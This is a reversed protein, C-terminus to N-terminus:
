CSKKLAVADVEEDTVLTEDNTSTEEHFLEIATQRLLYVGMLYAVLASLASSAITYTTTFHSAEAACGMLGFFTIALGVGRLRILALGWGTSPGSETANSHKESQELNEEDSLNLSDLYRDFEGDPFTSNEAFGMVYLVTHCALIMLGVVTFIVFILNM